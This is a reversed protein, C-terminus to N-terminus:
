VSRAKLANARSKWNRQADLLCCCLPLGSPEAYGELSYIEVARLVGCCFVQSEM